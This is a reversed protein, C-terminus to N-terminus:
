PLITVVFEFNDMLCGGVSGSGRRHYHQLVSMMRCHLFSPLSAKMKKEDMYMPGLAWLMM